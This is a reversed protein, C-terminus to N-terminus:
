GPHDNVQADLFNSLPVVGKDDNSERLLSKLYPRTATSRLDKTPVRRLSVRQIGSAFSCSAGLLLLLALAAVSNQSAMNGAL